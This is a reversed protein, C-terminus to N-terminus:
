KRWFLTYHSHTSLVNTGSDGGCNTGTWQTGAPSSLSYSTRSDYCVEDGGCRQWRDSVCQETYALRLGFGVTIWHFLHGNGLSSDFSQDQAALGLNAESSKTQCAHTPTRCDYYTSGDYYVDWNSYGKPIILWGDNWRVLWEYQSFGTAMQRIGSSSARIGSMVRSGGTEQTAFNTIALNPNTRNTENSNVGTTSYDLTWGGGAISNECYADYGGTGDPDVHYVGSPMGAAMYDKCSSAAAEYSLAASSAASGTGSQVQAAANLTATFSASLGSKPRMRFTCSAGPDLAPCSGSIEFDADHGPISLTVAGSNFSGTNSLIFDVYSGATGTRASWSASNPQLVLVAATVAADVTSDDSQAFAPGTELALCLVSLRVLRAIMTEEEV